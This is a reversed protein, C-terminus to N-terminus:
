KKTRGAKVGVKIEIPEEKSLDVSKETRFSGIDLDVGGEPVFGSLSVTVLAEDPDDSAIELAGADGGVDSPTYDVPVDILGGPDVIFPTAPAAPSLAFDASGTLTLSDVACEFDGTNGITASLTANSGLPVPGFDLVLPSVDIDCQAVAPTGSGTVSVSIVPEDPDNSAIELAGSDGGVDSPTYDVPLGQSAGPTVVFPTSPAAPNLAFDASGTETIGTVTLDATGVNAIDTTLIVTTGQTVSGFDLSLPSVDIDGVPASCDADADDYVGDGDNDLGLRGPDSSWDELYDPSFNCPDNASTDPRGYYLPAMNETSAGPALPAHCNLCTTVSSVVHHDALSSADPLGPTTPTNTHCGACGLGGVTSDNLFPNRGDDSRHCLDCDTNMFSSSRHVDHLSDPWTSGEALSTYPSDKFGGHCNQCGDNYREYAGADSTWAIALGVAFGTCLLVKWVKMGTEERDSVL